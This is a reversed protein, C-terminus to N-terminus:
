PSSLKLLKQAATNQDMAESSYTATVTTMIPQDSQVTTCVAGGTIMTNFTRTRDCVRNKVVFSGRLQKIQYVLNRGLHALNRQKRCFWGKYM